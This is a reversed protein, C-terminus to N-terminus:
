HNHKHSSFVIWSSEIFQDLYFDKLSPDWVIFRALTIASGYMFSAPKVSTIMEDNHDMGNDCHGIEHILLWYKAIDPAFEWQNKDVVIRPRHGTKRECTAAANQDAAGFVISSRVNFSHGKEEIDQAIIELVSSFEQDIEQKGCAALLLLLALYKM